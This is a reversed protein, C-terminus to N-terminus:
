EVYSYVYQTGFFIKRKYSAIQKVLKITKDLKIVNDITYIQTSTINKFINLITEDSILSISM